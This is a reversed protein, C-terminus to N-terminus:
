HVDFVFFGGESVVFVANGRPDVASRAIGTNVGTISLPTLETFPGSVDLVRLQYPNTSFDIGYVRNGDPSIDGAASTIALTGM